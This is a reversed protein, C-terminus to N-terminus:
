VRVHKITNNTYDLKKIQLETKMSINNQKPNNSKTEQNFQIKKPKLIKQTNLM